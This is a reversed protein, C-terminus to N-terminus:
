SWQGVVSGTGSVGLTTGTISGFSGLTGTTTGTSWQGVVSGTGSVGLTTGTISGFSGLTGTTTGTSWQGLVSGFGSLGLTTGAISGFSGLTGTTTGTSWQGLVSGSGSLGLTTGTISGFSALISTITSTYLLGSISGTVAILSGVNLLGGISANSSANFTGNIDFTASPNTQLIGVKNSTSVYISNNYISLPRAQGIGNFLNSIYAGSSNIGVELRENNSNTEITNLCYMSMRSDYVTNSGAGVNGISLRCGMNTSDNSRVRFVNGPIGSGGQVASM